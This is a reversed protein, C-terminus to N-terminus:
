SKAFDQAFWGIMLAVFFWFSVFGVAVLLFADINSFGNGFMRELLIKASIIQYNDNAKYGFISGNTTPEVLPIIQVTVRNSSQVEAEKVVVDLAQKPMESLLVPRFSVYISSVVCLLALGVGIRAATQFVTGSRIIGGPTSQFRATTILSVIMAFLGLVVGFLSSQTIATIVVSVVINAMWGEAVLRKFLGDFAAIRM